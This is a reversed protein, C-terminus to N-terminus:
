GIKKILKRQHCSTRELQYYHRKGNVEDPSKNKKNVNKLVKNIREQVTNFM